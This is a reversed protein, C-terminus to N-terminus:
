KRQAQEVASQIDKGAKEPNSQGGILAALGNAASDSSGKGFLIHPAGKGDLLWQTMQKLIPNAVQAGAAQTSPMSNSNNMTRTYRQPEYIFKIFDLAADKNKSNNSVALGAGAQNATWHKRGAAWAPTEAVKYRKVFAPPANQVFGQPSWSGSFLMAARGTYLLQEAQPGQLANANPVLAGAKNLEDVKALAQVVQPSDWRAGNRQLDLDLVLQPNDTVQTILPLFFDLGSPGPNNSVALPLKGVSKLKAAAVKLDDWTEPVDAKAKAFLDPDYFIGFTQAMWGLAYQKGADTYEDRTSKFFDKLFDEGLAATLDASVGAKGYEIALVHPAFIEPPDGAAVAAQLAPLYSDTDGFVRNQVVVNPHASQFESVLKPWEDRQESYWTWVRVTTKGGSNGTGTDPSDCAGVLSPAALAAVGALSGRLVGRRTFTSPPANGVPAAPEPATDSPNRRSASRM